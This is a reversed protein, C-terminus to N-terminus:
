PSTEELPNPRQLMLIFYKKEDGEFKHYVLNKNVSILSSEFDSDKLTLGCAECPRPRTSVAVVFLYDM